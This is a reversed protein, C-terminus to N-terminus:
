KPQEAAKNHVQVFENPIICTTDYKVLERDIYKINDEGRVKVIQLKTVVREKVVENVTNSKLEAEAVKAELEAAAAKWTNDAYLMGFIFITAAVVLLGTNKLIVQYPKLLSFYSLLFASIGALFPLWWLWDPFIKFIWFM